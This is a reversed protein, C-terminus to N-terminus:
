QSKNYYYILICPVRFTLILIHSNGVPKHAEATHQFYFKTSVRVIQTVTQHHPVIIFILQSLCINECVVM